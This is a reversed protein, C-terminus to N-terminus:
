GPFRSGQLLKSAKGNGGEVIYSEISKIECKSTGDAQKRYVCKPKVVRMRCPGWSAWLRKDRKFKPTETGKVEHFEIDVGPHWKCPYCVMFDVVAVCEAVGLTIRVQRVWWLVRGAAIEKDLWEAYAAEVKSGYRVGEYIVPVAHYKSSGGRAERIVEALPKPPAKMRITAPM